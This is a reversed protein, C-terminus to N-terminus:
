KKELPAEYRLEAADTGITVQHEKYGDLSFRLVLTSEAVDIEEDVPTAGVPRGDVFVNAGEPVSSARLRIKRADKGGFLVFSSLIM